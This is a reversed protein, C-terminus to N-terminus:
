NFYTPIQIILKNSNMYNTRLNFNTLQWYVYVYSFIFIFFIYKDKINIKWSITYSAFWRRTSKCVCAWLCVIHIVSIEILLLIIDPNIKRKIITFTPFRVLTFYFRTVCWSLNIPITKGIGDFGNHRIIIIIKDGDDIYNIWDCISYQQRVCTARPFFFRFFFISSIKYHCYRFFTYWIIIM